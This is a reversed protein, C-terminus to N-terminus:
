PGKVAGETQQATVRLSGGAGAAHTLCEVSSFSRMFTAMVAKRLQTIRVLQKETDGEHFIMQKTFVCDLERVGSYLIM